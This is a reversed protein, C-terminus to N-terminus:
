KMKAALGRKKLLGAEDMLVHYGDALLFWVDAEREDATSQEEILRVAEAAQGRDILNRADVALEEGTAPLFVILALLGAIWVIQSNRM